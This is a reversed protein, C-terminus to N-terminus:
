PSNILSMNTTNAPEIAFPALCQQVRKTVAESVPNRDLSRIRSQMDHDPELVQRTPQFGCQDLFRAPGAHTNMRYPRKIIRSSFVDGSVPDSQDHPIRGQVCPPDLFANM